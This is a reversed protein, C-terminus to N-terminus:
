KNSLWDVIYQLVQEKEPENHGEHYLGEWLKLEAKNGTKGAFEISAASSTLVDKTGHYVLTPVSLEPAHEIIWEGAFHVSNFFSPTIADHVLPDAIYDEVVKPDRSIGEASLGTKQSLSPLLKGVSKALFLKMAPPEFALRIYPSSAILAIINTKRRLVYNLVINGGMSHGMLVLKQNPFQEEVQKLFDAIDDLMADLSPTHGRKGGSEGHGRQDLLAVSYGQKQFYEAVHAFRGKHEGMGHVICIVKTSNETHYYETILTLRDKSLFSGKEM